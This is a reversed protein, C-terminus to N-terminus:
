NTPNAPKAVPRTRKTYLNTFISRFGELKGFYRACDRCAEEDPFIGIVSPGSGSMMSGVAGMNRMVQKIHRIMPYRSHTVHELVNKMNKALTLVDGAQIAKLLINHDPHLEAPIANVDLRNYVWRTSINLPPNVILVPTIPLPKLKTLKEGIGEALMTGGYVCFPIDAGVQKGLVALQDETCGLAFLKNIGKLVVAGDASGGGLGSSVPIKKLLDIKVGANHLQFTDFMLKAIKYMINKENAPAYRNNSTLHIGPTSVKEITVIDGLMVTQMIMRVDHYGDARRSLIDLSLNIKARAKGQFTTM